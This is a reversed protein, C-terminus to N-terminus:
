KDMNPNLNFWTLLIPGLYNSVQNNFIHFICLCLKTFIVFKVAILGDTM